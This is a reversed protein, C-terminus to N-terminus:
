LRNKCACWRVMARALAQSRYTVNSTSLLQFRIIIENRKTYEIEEKYILTNLNYYWQFYTQLTIISSFASYPGVTICLKHLM